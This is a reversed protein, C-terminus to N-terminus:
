ASLVEVADYLSKDEEFTLCQPLLCGTVADGQGTSEGLGQGLLALESGSRMRRAPGPAAECVARFIGPPLNSSFAGALQYWAALALCSPFPGPSGAAWGAWPSRLVDGRIWLARRRRRRRAAEEWEYRGQEKVAAGEGEEGVKRSSRRGLRGWIGEGKM